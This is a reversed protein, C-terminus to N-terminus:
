KSDEGWPNKSIGDSGDSDFEEYDVDAFAELPEEEGSVEDTNGIRDDMDPFEIEGEDAGFLVVHANVGDWIVKRVVTRIAARKEEVSMGDINTRFMSLMQRLLDFEGDSLFNASTLGELEHIRNEVERNTETLEEIRKLFRPKAVSDAVMALSDILGNITKENERYEEKLKALQAEYEQRSGTYFQRSKELQAIFSSDHETLMKIQEIIAMDLVNGNANRRDCRERKSREKMKCVYTYIPDGEATKRKSLKPYMREGCACYILGTLLAENNRPKRYAKSKNRDLSEQVKIWQKSPVLGPHQGLAIIWESVPLLITTKGKEQDTRNYAMIGCSGEFAEKPFCVDAERETFYNYADEDAVMYVPNQLIAKIAFRTFDKGQKTKIRRRLLEAEVATLSDTETYLDFIMKPIEAEEPIPVLKFSKRTKGDVTVKSVAESKFGTPANGGLWRGTKALEHMNDRIREAITERELQSFVSIIFMMARGMPTSTDFQERVSVFSVELKTLEDILSTFDSINRSIRDLRYVVIAKFQHKRVGEMMDRFAPRNLNGGSFGEDEFVVCAEAYEEGFFNRVYERCLEVQNGISEGKGTFKSKRSYIAIAEATKRM